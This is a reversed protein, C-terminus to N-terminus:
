RQTEEGHNKLLHDAELEVVENGAGQGGWGGGGGWRELPDETEMLRM